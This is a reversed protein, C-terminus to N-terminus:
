GLVPGEVLSSSRRTHLMNSYKSPLALTSSLVWVQTLNVCGGLWKQSTMLMFSPTTLDLFSCQDAQQVLCQQGIGSQEDIM